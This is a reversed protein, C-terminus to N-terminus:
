IKKHSQEHADFWEPKSIETSYIYNVIELISKEDYNLHPMVGLDKTADRMLANEPQPNKVWFSMMKVFEDKDASAKIYRRKVAYMPPAIMQEETKNEFGHCAVCKQEFQIKGISDVVEKKIITESNAKSESKTNNCSPLTLISLSILFLYIITNNYGTKMIKIHNLNSNEKDKVWEKAKDVEKVKDV